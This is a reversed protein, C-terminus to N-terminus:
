RSSAVPRGARNEGSATYVYAKLRCLPHSQSASKQPCDSDRPWKVTQGGGFYLRNLETRSQSMLPFLGLTRNADLGHKWSTFRSQAIGVVSHARTVAPLPVTQIMM